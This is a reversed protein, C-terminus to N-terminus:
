QPGVGIQVVLKTHMFDPIGFAAAEPLQALIHGMRRGQPQRGIREVKLAVDMKLKDGLCFAKKFQKHGFFREVVSAIHLQTHLGAIGGISIAGQAPNRSKGVPHFLFRDHGALPAGPERSGSFANRKM